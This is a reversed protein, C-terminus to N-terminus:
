GHICPHHPYDNTSRPENPSGEDNMTPLPPEPVTDLVIRAVTVPAVEYLGKLYDTAWERAAKAEESTLDVPLNQDTM